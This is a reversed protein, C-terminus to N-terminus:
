TDAGRLLQALDQAASPATVDVRSWTVSTAIRNPRPLRRAAATVDHGDRALRAVTASGINGTGGIVTVRM